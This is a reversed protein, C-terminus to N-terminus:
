HRPWASYWRAAAPFPRMMAEYGPSVLKAADLEAGTVTVTVGSVVVVRLAAGVESVTPWVSVSVAVTVAVRPVGAPVTVKRLPVAVSPVAVSFAPPTAIKVKVGGWPM